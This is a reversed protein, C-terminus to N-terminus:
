RRIARHHRGLRTSAPVVALSPLTIEVCSGSSRELAALHRNADCLQVWCALLLLFLTLWFFVVAVFEKQASMPGKRM